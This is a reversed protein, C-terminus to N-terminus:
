IEEIDFDNVMEEDEANTAIEVETRAPIYESWHKDLQSLRATIQPKTTYRSPPDSSKVASLVFMIVSKLDKASLVEGRTNKEKVYQAEQM